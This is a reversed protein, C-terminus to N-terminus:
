KIKKLIERCAASYEGTADLKLCNGCYEKAQDRGEKSELNINRAILCHPAAFTPDFKLGSKLINLFEEHRNKSAYVKALILCTEAAMRGEGTTSLGRIALECQAQAKDVDPKPQMMLADCLKRHAIAETDEFKIAEKYYQKAKVFNKEGLYADGILNSSMGSEADMEQVRMARSRTGEYDKLALYIAAEELAFDPRSGDLRLARGIVEKADKLKNQRRMERAGVFQFLSKGPQKKLLANLAALGAKRTKRDRVKLVVEILEALAKEPESAEAEYKEKFSKLINGAVTNKGLTNGWIIALIGKYLQARVHDRDSQLARNLAQTAERYMSRRIAYLGLGILARIETQKAGELLHDKAEALDGKKLMVYGLATHLVPSGLNTKLGEELIKVAENTNSGGYMTILGHAAIIMTNSLKSALAQNIYKMGEQYLDKSGGFEGMLVACIFAARGLADVHEKDLKLVARYHVLAKTYGSYSDQNFLPKGKELHDNIEAQKLGAQWTYIVYIILAIVLAGGMYMTYKLSKSKPKSDREEMEQFIDAIRKKKPGTPRRPRLTPVEDRRTPAITPMARETIREDSPPVAGPEGPDTRPAVVPMGKETPREDPPAEATQPSQTAVPEPEPQVPASRPTYDIGIKLLADRADQFEPNLDLAKKLFDVGNEEKGLKLHVNGMLYHAEAHEPSLKLLNNLEDIAKQHKAQDTYIRAMILRGTPLEPHAKIGKKCVVMAEVFRGAGLYAEALPIFAESNPNTAFEYELQALDSLSTSTM